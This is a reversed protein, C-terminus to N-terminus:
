SLPDSIDKRNCYEDSPLFKGSSLTVWVVHKENDTESKVVRVHHVRQRFGKSKWHGSGARYWGEGTDLTIRYSHWPCVIAERCHVRQEDIDEIDVIKGTQLPGGMHYCIADLAHLVKGRRVLLVQRQHVQFVQQSFPKLEELLCVAVPTSDLATMPSRTPLSLGNITIAVSKRNQKEEWQKLSNNAKALVDM